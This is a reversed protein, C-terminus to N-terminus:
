FVSKTPTVVLDRVCITQPLKYTHLIINALQEATM